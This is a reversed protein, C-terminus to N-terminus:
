FEHSHHRIKDLGIYYSAICTRDLNSVSPASDASMKVLASALTIKPDRHLTEQMCGQTAKTRCKKAAKM